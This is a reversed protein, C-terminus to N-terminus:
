LQVSDLYNQLDELQFSKLKLIISYILVTESLETEWVSRKLINFKSEFNQIRDLFIPNVRIM